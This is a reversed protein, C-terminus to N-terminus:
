IGTMRKARYQADAQRLRESPEPPNLLTSVFQMQEERSLRINEHADIIRTAAEQASSVVFESLTRASLMAAQQFLAKQENSIRAELRSDRTKSNSNSSNTQM